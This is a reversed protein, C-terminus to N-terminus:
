IIMEKIGLSLTIEMGQMLPTMVMEATFPIMEMGVKLTIMELMELSLVELIKMPNSLIMAKVEMYGFM